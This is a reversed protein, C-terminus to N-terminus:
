FVLLVGIVLKDYSLVDDVTCTSETNKFCKWYPMLAAKVNNITNIVSPNVRKHHELSPCPYNLLSRVTQFAGESLSPLFYGGELVVLLRGEALGSLLSVMHAYFAPTVNM